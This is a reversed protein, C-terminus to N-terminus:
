LICHYIGEPNMKPMGKLAEPIKLFSKKAAVFEQRIKEIEDDHLVADVEEPNGYGSESKM